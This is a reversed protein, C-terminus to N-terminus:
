RCPALVPDDDAVGNAVAMSRYSTHLEAGGSTTDGKFRGMAYGMRVSLNHEAGNLLFGACTHGGKVGSEHCAFVTKAM